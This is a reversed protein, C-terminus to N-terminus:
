DNKGGKVKEILITILYSLGVINFLIIFDNFLLLILLIIIFINNNKM